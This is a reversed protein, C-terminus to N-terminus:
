RRRRGVFGGLAVLALVSPAPVAYVGNLGLGSGTLLPPLASDLDWGLIFTQSLGLATAPAPDPRWNVIVSNALSPSLWETFSCTGQANNAESATMATVGTFSTQANILGIFADRNLGSSGYDIDLVSFLGNYYLPSNVFDKFQFALFGRTPLVGSAGVLTYCGNVFCEGARQSIFPSTGVQTYGAGALASASADVTIIGYSVGAFANSPLALGVLGLAIISTSRLTESLLGNNM